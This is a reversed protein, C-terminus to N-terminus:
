FSRFQVQRQDSGDLKMSWLRQNPPTPLDHFTEYYIHQSIPDYAVFKVGGARHTLNSVPGNGQLPLLSLQHQFADSPPDLPGSAPIEVLRRAHFLLKNGPLIAAPQEEQQRWTRNLGAQGTQEATLPRQDTGDSRMQYIRSSFGFQRVPENGNDPVDIDQRRKVQFVSGRSYFLSSGDPSWHPQFELEAHRTLTRRAGTALDLLAINSDNSEFSTYALTRGDPSWAMSPLNPQTDIKEIGEPFQPLEGDFSILPAPADLALVTLRSVLKQNGALETLVALKRSDPSWALAQLTGKPQSFERQRGGHEIILKAPQDYNARKFLALTQQDPALSVAFCSESSLERTAQILHREPDLSGEFAISAIGKTRRQVEDIYFVKRRTFDFQWLIQEDFVLGM